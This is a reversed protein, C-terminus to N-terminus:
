VTNSKNFIGLTNKDPEPFSIEFGLNKLMEPELFCKHIQYPNEGLGWANEVHEENTIYKSPTYIIVKKRAIRKMHEIANLAEQLELHELVDLCLVIDFSNEVFKDLDNMGLKIVPWYRNAVKLYDEWMDCGLILKCKLNSPKFIKKKLRYKVSQNESMQELVDTTAQMIGCGLDLVTDNESVHKQIINGLWNM